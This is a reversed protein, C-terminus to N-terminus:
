KSEPCNFEFVYGRVKFRDGSVIRRRTRPNAEYDGADGTFVLFTGPLGAAMYAGKRLAEFGKAGEVTRKQDRTIKEVKFAFDSTRAPLVFDVGPGAKTGVFVARQKKGGLDFENVTPNEEDENWYRLTGKVMAASSLMKVRLLLLLLALFLVAGGAPVVVGATMLPHKEGFSRAPNVTVEGVPLKESIARDRYVGEMALALTVSGEELLEAWGSFTGDGKTKDGSAREGDDLLDVTRPPKGEATLLLQFKDVRLHPGPTLRDGGLTIWAQVLLRRGSEYPGPEFDASLKPKEAPEHKHILFVSRFFQELTDAEPVFFYDGGTEQAVRNLLPGAEKRHLAICHVAWGRAKYAGALDSVANIYADMRSPNGVLYPLDPEGDSLLIAFRKEGTGRNLEQLALELGGKIDTNGSARVGTLLAATEDRWQGHGIKKLPALVSAQDSFGIISIEDHEGLMELVKKAAELRFDNPDNAKMSGSNDIVLAVTVAGPVTDREQGWMNAGLMFVLAFLFLSTIIRKKM